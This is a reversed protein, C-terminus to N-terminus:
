QLCLVVFRGTLVLGLTHRGAGPGLWHRSSDLRGLIVLGLTHRGARPGLWHSNSDLRGWIVLRLTHRGSGPGLWHSLYRPMQEGLEPQRNQCM